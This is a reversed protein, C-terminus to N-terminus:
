DSNESFKSGRMPTKGSHPREDVGPISNQIDFVTEIIEKQPSKKRPHRNRFTRLALGDQPQRLDIVPLRALMNAKTTQDPNQAPFFSQNIENQIQNRSQWYDAEMARRIDEPTHAKVTGLPMEERTDNIQTMLDKHLLPCLDEATPHEVGNSKLVALAQAFDTKRWLKELETDTGAAQVKQFIQETPWYRLVEATKALAIVILWKVLPNQPQCLRLAAFVRHCHGRLVLAAVESKHKKITMEHQPSDLLSDLLERKAHFLCLIKGHVDPTIPVISDPTGSLATMCTAVWFRQSELEYNESRKGLKELEREWSPKLHVGIEKLRYDTHMEWAWESDGSFSKPLQIRWQEGHRVSGLANRMAANIMWRKITRTSVGLIEAARANKLWREKPAITPNSFPSLIM